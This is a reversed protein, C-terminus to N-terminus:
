FKVHCRRLLEELEAAAAYHDDMRHGDAGANRRCVARFYAAAAALRRRAEPPIHIAADGPRRRAGSNLVNSKSKEPKKMGDGAAARRWQCMPWIYLRQARGGGDAKVWIM